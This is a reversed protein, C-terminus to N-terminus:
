EIEATLKVIAPNTENELQDKMLTYKATEKNLRLADFCERLKNLEVSRLLKSTGVNQAMM